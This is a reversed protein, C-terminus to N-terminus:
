CEDVNLYTYTLMYLHRSLKGCIGMCYFHNFQVSVIDHNHLPKAPISMNLLHPLYQLKHSMHDMVHLSSTYWDNGWSMMMCVSFQQLALYLYPSRGPMKRVEWRPGLAKMNYLLPLHLWTISLSIVMVKLIQQATYFGAPGSGVIAIQPPPDSSQISHHRCLLGRLLHCQRLHRLQLAMKQFFLKRELNAWSAPLLLVIIYTGHLTYSLIDTSKYGVTTHIAYM